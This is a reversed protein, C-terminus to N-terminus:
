SLARPRVPPPRHRPRPPALPAPSRPPAPHSPGDGPQARREVERVPDSLVPRSRINGLWSAERDVRGALCRRARDRLGTVIAVQEGVDPVVRKAADTPTAARVDAVQALLPVDREIGM